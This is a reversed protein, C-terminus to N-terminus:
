NLIKELESLSVIYPSNLGNDLKKCNNKHVWTTKFDINNNFGAVKDETYSVLLMNNNIEIIEGIINPKDILQVRMYTKFENNHEIHEVHNFYVVNTGLSYKFRANVDLFTPSVISILKTNPNSFLMNCLGGGISGIVIDAHNFMIIKEITTMNETFVETFAYKNVLMNVLEDENVMKRRTTYNTGINDHNNHLHTRRSIYIKKPFPKEIINLNPFDVKYIISKILDYFRYIEEHPPENSDEGHTYSSSVYLNSYLTNKDIIVIDKNIDIGLLKIFEVVFKYFEKKNPNPYNCLLKLDPIRQKLRFYSILYPLTDYVFHYYNDTNYNFFFLNNNDVTIIPEIVIINDKNPTEEDIDLLSMTREEIIKYTKNNEESYAFTNPYFLNDGVIKINRLKHLYIIRNTESYNFLVEKSDYSTTIFDKVLPLTNLDIM